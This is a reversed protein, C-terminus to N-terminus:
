SVKCLPWKPFRSNWKELNVVHCSAALAKEWRRSALGVPLTKLLQKQITSNLANEFNLLCIYHIPKDVKDEAHRYLYSDRFKYKLYRTLWRFRKQCEQRKEEEDHIESNFEDGSIYEKMEIFVYADDFEAIIDVAKMPAGHFTTKSKDKEDFVFATLADTFDFSFGDAQVNM